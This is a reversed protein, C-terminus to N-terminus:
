ESKGTTPADLGCDCYKGYHYACSALHRGKNLLGKLREVEARLDSNESELHKIYCGDCAPQGDIEYAEFDIELGVICNCKSCEFDSM